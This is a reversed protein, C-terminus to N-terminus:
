HCRRTMTALCTAEARSPSRERRANEAIHRRLGYHDPSPARRITSVAAVRVVPSSGLDRSPRTKFTRRSWAPRAGYKRAKTPPRRCTAPLSIGARLREPTRANQREPTRVNQRESTGARLREPPQHGPLRHEPPRREPANACIRRGAARLQRGIGERPPQGRGAHHPRPSHAGKPHESRGM